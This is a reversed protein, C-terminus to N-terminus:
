ALIRSRCNPGPSLTPIPTHDVEPQVGKVPRILPILLRPPPVPCNVLHDPAGNLLHYVGPLPVISDKGLDLSDMIINLLLCVEGLFLDSLDQRLNLLTELFIKNWRQYIYWVM